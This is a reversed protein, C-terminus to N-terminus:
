ANQLGVDIIYFALIMMGVTFAQFIGGLIVTTLVNHVVEEYSDQEDMWQQIEEPTADRAEFNISTQIPFKESSNM